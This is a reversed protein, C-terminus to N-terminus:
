AARRFGGIAIRLRHTLGATARFVYGRMVAFNVLFCTGDAVVKAGYLPRGLLDVQVYLLGVSLALSVVYLLLFRRGQVLVRGGPERELSRKNATFSFLGGAIRAGVQGPLHGAGLAGLALFVVWDVSASGVAVLNYLAFDRALRM